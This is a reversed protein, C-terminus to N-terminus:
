VKADEKKEIGGQRNTDNSVPELQGIKKVEQESTDDEDAKEQPYYFIKPNGEFTVKGTEALYIARDALTLNQDKIIKVNGQAIIKKIGKKAVDFYLFAKDSYMTADQKKMVVDDNFVAEGKNYEIELPGSCTIMVQEKTDKIPMQVKVDKGFDAKKLQTDASMGRAVIRLTNKFLYVKDNTEVLNSTRKWNLTDTILKLGQQSKLYVNDQLFIDMNAKNLRAKSSTITVTDDKPYYLANMKDIDVHHEYIIAEKGQMQWDKSGDPKFNSIYFDKIKQQGAPQNTQKLKNEQSSVANAYGSFTFFTLLVFQLILNKIM